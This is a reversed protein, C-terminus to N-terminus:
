PQIGRRISINCPNLIMPCTHKEVNRAYLESITLLEVIFEFLIHLKAAARAMEEYGVNFCLGCHNGLYRAHNLARGYLGYYAFYDDILHFVSYRCEVWCQMNQYTLEFLDM